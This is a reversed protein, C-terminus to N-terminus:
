SPWEWGDPYGPRYWGGTIEADPYMSRAAAFAAKRRSDDFGDAVEVMAEGEGERPPRFSDWLWMAPGLDAGHEMYAIPHKVTKGDLWAIVALVGVTDGHARSPIIEIFVSAM